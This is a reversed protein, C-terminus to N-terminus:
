FGEVVLRAFAVHDSLLADDIYLCNGSFTTGFKPLLQGRFALGNGGLWFM